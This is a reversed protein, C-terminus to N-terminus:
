TWTECPHLPATQHPKTNIDGCIHRNHRPPVNVARGSRNNVIQDAALIRLDGLLKVIDAPLTARKPRHANRRRQKGPRSRTSACVRCRRLAHDRHARWHGPDSCTQQSRHRPAGFDAPSRHNQRHHTDLQVAAHVMRLTNGNKFRSRRNQHSMVAHVDKRIVFIERFPQCVIEPVLRIQEAQRIVYLYLNEIGARAATEIHRFTKANSGGCANPHGRRGLQETGNVFPPEAQGSDFPEPPDPLCRELESM